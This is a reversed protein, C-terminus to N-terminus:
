TCEKGLKYYVTNEPTQIYDIYTGQLMPNGSSATLPIFEGVEVFNRIWWPSMLIIFTLTMITGLQFLRLLNLKKYLILYVFLFIPYIAITPRCLVALAWVIGLTIFKLYNPAKSFELSLYILLYLLTTFLTETLLYGATTINPIYFAVLFASFIAIKNNFLNEAILYILVITVCSLLAQFVRVTQIGAIGYGM